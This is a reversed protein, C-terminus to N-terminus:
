ENEKANKNLKNIWWPDYAFPVDYWTQGESGFTKVSDRFQYEQVLKDSVDNKVIYLDSEHHAIQCGAEVAKQYITVGFLMNGKQTDIMFRDNSEKEAKVITLLDKLEDFSGSFIIESGDNIQILCSGERRRYDEGRGEFADVSIFPVNGYVSCGGNPFIVIKGANKWQYGTGRVSQLKYRLEAKM